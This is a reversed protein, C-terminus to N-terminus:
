PRSMFGVNEDHLPTSLEPIGCQNFLQNEITMMIPRSAELEAKTPGINLYLLSQSFVTEGATNRQIKLTGKINSGKKGSYVFFYDTHAPVTVFLRPSSEYFQSSQSVNVVGPTTSIVNSVCEISPIESLKAERRIGVMWDCGCLTILLIPFFFCSKIAMRRGPRVRETKMVYNTWIIVAEVYIPNVLHQNELQVRQWL